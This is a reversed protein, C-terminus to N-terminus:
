LNDYSSAAAKMINAVSDRMEVPEVLIVNDGYSAFLTDLEHNYRCEISYFKRGKLSPYKDTFYKESDADLAMQTSHVWKTEIFKVYEPKVAFYIDEIENEKYLTIGVIEQFRDEIDVAPEMYQIEDVYEFEDVFRDLAFNAIFSADFPHENTGETTCLLYWRDNCQRLQYPHVTEEVTKEETGEYVRYKFRIVKKKSIAGFLKGILNSKIQLRENQGFSIIHRQSSESQGNVKKKIVDLWPFNSLGEFQGLSKLVERLMDEEDQTLEQYFLPSSQDAYRVTGRGGTNRLISKQFPGCEDELANIDKQIMRLTVKPCSLSVEHLIQHTTYNRNPDALMRDIIRYRAMADKNIPM